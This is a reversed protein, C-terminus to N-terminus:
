KKRSRKVKMIPNSTKQRKKDISNKDSKLYENYGRGRFEYVTGSDPHYLEITSDNIVYLEFYDNGMFDYALTLTKLMEDNEVDYVQYNGEFDWQLNSVPTGPADVSSKFFSPLFQLYNEDDFDNIAGEESTYVKEWADYEQLLYNINDYFVFDYDFNNAQYGNLFYSTNSRPDRLEITNGNVAFVDLLWLGDVDHDIEVTGRLTSYYGVDIGLGNGTKGIGVINNNAYVTGNVFSITFARQLFPVEGNGRTANIDVYWLDYSRLVQDTNFASEEIFEDEIIVETYCSTLLTGVMVFGLLLRIAKM